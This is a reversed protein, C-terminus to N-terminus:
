SAACAELYGPPSWREKRKEAEEKRGRRRKEGAEVEEKIGCGVEDKVV